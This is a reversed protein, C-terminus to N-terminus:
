SESEEEGGGYDAIVEGTDPDVEKGDETLVTVKEQYSEAKKITSTAIAVVKNAIEEAVEPNERLFELVLKGGQFKWEENDLITFWSGAKKIIDWRVAYTIIEKLRDIQGPGFGTKSNEVYIDFQGSRKPSFTKNKETKFKLAHGVYLETGDDQKEIYRENGSGPRVWVIISATFNQGRGGPMTEPKYKDMTDRLQNIMILAPKLNNEDEMSGRNFAAQAKRFFKNNQRAMLGMTFDEMGGEVEASPASAAISDYVVLPVDSRDLLVTVIDLANEANDPRVLNLRNLDIGFKEAWEAVFSGEQDIWWPDQDPYMKQCERVAHYAVFSKGSSEPGAIISLRGRPWGGGTEVDLSLSGTPIRTLKMAIAESAVTLTGNGYQKNIANKLQQISQPKKSKKEEAMKFSGKL